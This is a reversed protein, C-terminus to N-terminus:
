IFVNKGRLLAPVIGAKGSNTILDFVGSEVLKKGIHYTLIENQSDSIIGHSVKTIKKSINHINKIASDSYNGEINIEILYRVGPSMEFIESPIDEEEINLINSLHIAMEKDEFIFGDGFKKFNNDILISEIKSHSKEKLYIQINYSM